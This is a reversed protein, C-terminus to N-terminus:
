ETKTLKVLFRMQILHLDSYKWLNNVWFMTLRNVIANKCQTWAQCRKLNITRNFKWLKIQRQYASTCHWRNAFTAFLLRHLRQVFSEDKAWYNQKMKFMFHTSVMRDVMSKLKKKSWIKWFIKSSEWSSSSNRPHFNM